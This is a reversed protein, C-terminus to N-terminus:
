ARGSISAARELFWTGLKRANEHIDFGAEQVIRAAETRDYTRERVDLLADAWAQVDLPLMIADESLLTEKSVNESLLVPLGSAQAEVAAFPLGEYLSPLVFADAACLLDQVEPVAGELCVADGIGQEAIRATVENHLLGDGVYLLRADPCVQHLQAFADILFLPNKQPHMRGVTTVVFADEWGRQERTQARVTPDFRFRDVDVGNSVKVISESAASADPFMFGAAEQSCAFLDTALIPVLKKHSQHLFGNLANGMNVSNHSHIIRVPVKDRALKLLTVDSLTCAHYWIADFAGEDLLRKLALHNGLPHRIRNPVVHFVASDPLLGVAYAPIEDFVVCEFRLGDFLEAMQQCYSIIFSEVGGRQSSLGFVLVKM